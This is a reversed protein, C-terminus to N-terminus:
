SAKRKRFGNAMFEKLRAKDEKKLYGTILFNGVSNRLVLFYYVTYTIAIAIFCLVFYDILLNSTRGLRIYFIGLIIIVPHHLIYFAYSANSIFRFTPNTFNLFRYILNLWFVTLSFSMFLYLTWMLNESPEIFQFIIVISSYVIGSLTIERWKSTLSNSSVNKLNLFTYAGFLFVPLNRGMMGLRLLDNNSNIAWDIHSGAIHGTVMFLSWFLITFIINNNMFLLLRNLPKKFIGPIYKILILLLSFIYIHYLFWLHSLSFHDGLPFIAETYKLISFSKGTVFEQLPVIILIGFILPILIRQFRRRLFKRERYKKLSYM